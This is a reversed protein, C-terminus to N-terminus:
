LGAHNFVQTAVAHEVESRQLVGDSNGLGLGWGAASRVHCHTRPLWLVHTTAPM